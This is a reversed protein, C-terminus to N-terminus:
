LGVPLGGHGSGSHALADRLTEDSQRRTTPGERRRTIPTMPGALSEIRKVVSSVLNPLAQEVEPSLGVRLEFSRPVVGILQLQPPYDGLLRLGDLLDAVGIQHVSLRERVAPAVEDGTIEILTGPAEEESRVADV